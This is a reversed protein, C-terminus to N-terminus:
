VLRCPLRDCIDISVWARRNVRRRRHYAQYHQHNCYESCIYVCLWAKNGNIEAASYIIAAACPILSKRRRGAWRIRGAWSQRKDGIKRKLLKTKNKRELRWIYIWTSEGRKKEWLTPIGEAKKKRKRRRKEKEEKWLSIKKKEKRWLCHKICISHLLAPNIYPVANEKQPDGGAGANINWIMSQNMEPRLTTSWGSKFIQNWLCCGM